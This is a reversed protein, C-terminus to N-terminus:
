ERDSLLPRFPSSLFTVKERKTGGSPVPIARATQKRAGAHGCRHSLQILMEPRCTPITIRENKLALTRGVFKNTIAATYKRSIREIDLMGKVEREAHSM